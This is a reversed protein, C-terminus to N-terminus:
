PKAEEYEMVAEIWAAAVQPVIANGYGRLRGVRAPLGHALPFTGPEVPRWKGDRCFLWDADRWHGNTPSPRSVLSDSGVHEDLKNSGGGEGGDGSIRNGLEARQECDADALGIDAGGACNDHGSRQWERAEGEAKGAAGDGAGSGGRLHQSSADALRDNSSRSQDNGAGEHWQGADVKDSRSADQGRGRTPM